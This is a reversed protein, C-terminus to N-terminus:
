TFHVYDTTFLGGHSLAAIVSIHQLSGVIIELEDTSSVFLFLGVVVAAPQQLSVVAMVTVVAVETPAGCHPAHYITM